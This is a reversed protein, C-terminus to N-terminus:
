NPTPYPKGFKDTLGSAYGGSSLLSLVQGRQISSPTAKWSIHVWTHELILQDFNILDKYQLLKQCIQLSSGYSSSFDVAEGLVHQSSDRSKLARNLELCRIWSSVSIPKGLIARVKELKTATKTATAIVELSPHSNDIDLRSATQSETAEQLTFHDSLSVVQASLISM